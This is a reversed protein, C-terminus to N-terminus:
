FYEGNNLDNDNCNKNLFSLIHKIVEITWGNGLLKYIASDSTSITRGMEIYSLKLELSNGQLEISSNIYLHISPNRSFLWIVQTIILNILISMTYLKLEKSSNEESLKRLLKEIFNNETLIGLIDEETQVSENKNPIYLTETFDGCKTINTVCVLSEQNESKKIAFNVNLNQSGLEKLYNLFDTDKLDSITCSVSMLVPKNPERVVKWKANKLNILSLDQYNLLETDLFGTIINTAYDLQKIQSQSIVIKQKAYEQCLVTQQNGAFTCFQYNIELGKWNYWDPITQLRSCELPTLRRIRAGDSFGVGKLKNGGQASLCQCREDEYHIKDGQYPSLEKLVKPQSMSHGIGLTGSKGDKYFARMDQSTNGKGTSDWQIYNQTFVIKPSNCSGVGGNKENSTEGSKITPSKGEVSYVNGNKGGSPYINGMLVLNDKQVSTLANTKGSQQPELEQGNERGRMVVCILDMDSHNGGSHAGATFCSAKEQNPKPNGSKDIKLVFPRSRYQETGKSYTALITGTKDKNIRGNGDVCYSGNTSNFYNAMMPLSKDNSISTFKKELRTKDTVYKTLKDSLYYRENVEDELIDKLLIGRDKPQPIDTYVEDFLGVKKIRINTWYWRSRNQASVLNSNLNVPFVGVYESIIRLYDRKMNVNELLFLVKPNLEKVHNLIEVFVFFLKSRPDDFALQKGAFSFGQCPSGALILDIEQWKITWERWKIIDGLQITDPFNLQTQKIAYKDIESAYYVEPIIGLEKLAIQGGSMGDFLSLVKM